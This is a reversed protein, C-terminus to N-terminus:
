EKWLEEEQDEKSYIQPNHAIAENYTDEELFDLLICGRWSCMDAGNKCEFVIGRSIVRILRPFRISINLILRFESIELIVSDAAGLANCIM